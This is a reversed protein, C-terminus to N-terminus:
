LTPFYPCAAICNSCDGGNEIWFKYCKDYDVAWRLIGRSNSKSSTKFSPNKEFQIAEAECAEACKGCSRCFSKVGFEIPKDINLPLDTFVKCIRVCPGNKDTILLGNRGLEGLGADIALPISLATDNGMPIADYGLYRIFEAVCSICFAIKSYVFGTEACSIFNPSEKILSPDMKITMVIAYKCNKPINIKNGYLDYSYVWLPNVKTIGVQTAGFIKSINKVEKTTSVKDKVHLKKLKPKVMVSNANTLKDSSFAEHFYDYVTWSSMVKAFDLHSYGEKNHGIIKTINDYIGMQYFDANKDYKMRGFINNRQDFKKLNKIKYPILIEKSNM